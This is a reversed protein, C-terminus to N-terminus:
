DWDDAHLSIYTVASVAKGHIKGPKFNPMTMLVNRIKNQMGDDVIASGSQIKVNEIKGTSSIYMIIRLSSMDDALIPIHKKLYDRVGYRINGGDNMFIKEELESDEYRKTRVEEEQKDIIKENVDEVEEVKEVDEVDEERTGMDKVDEVDEEYTEM